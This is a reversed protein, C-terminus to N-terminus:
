VLCYIEIFKDLYNNLDQLSYNFTQATPFKRKIDEEFLRIIDLSLNILILLELFIKKTNRKGEM